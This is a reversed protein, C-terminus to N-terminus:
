NYFYDRAIKHKKSPFVFEASYFKKKENKELDMVIDDFDKIMLSANFKIGLPLDKVDGMGVKELFSQTINEVEGHQNVLAFGSKSSKM